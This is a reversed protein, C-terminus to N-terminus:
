LAPFIDMSVSHHPDLVQLLIEFEQANNGNREAGLMQM